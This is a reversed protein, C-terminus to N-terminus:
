WKLTVEGHDTLLVAKLYRYENLPMNTTLVGKADKGASVNKVIHNASDLAVQTNDSQVGFVQVDHISFDRTGKLHDVEYLFSHFPGYSKIKTIAFRLKNGDHELDKFRRISESEGGAMALMGIKAMALKEAQADIKRLREEHEDRLRLKERRIIDALLIAQDSKSLTFVIDSCYNKEGSEVVISINYNAVTIFYNSSYFASAVNTEVPPYKIIITNGSPVVTHKFVDSTRELSFPITASDKELLFPFILRTGHDPPIRIKLPLNAKLEVPKFCPAFAASVSAVYFFALIAVLWKM